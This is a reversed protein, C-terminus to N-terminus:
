EEVMEPEESADTAVEQEDQGASVEPPGATEDSAGAPATAEEGTKEESEEQVPARLLDVAEAIERKLGRAGAKVEEERVVQEEPTPVFIRVKGAAIEELAITIPNTSKSEVLPTDGERLQRARKAVAIVLSYKSGVRKDLEDASPYIM